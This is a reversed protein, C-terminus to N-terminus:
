WCSGRVPNMLIKLLIDFYSIIFWNTVWVPPPRKAQGPPMASPPYMPWRRNSDAHRCRVLAGYDESLDEVAIRHRCSVPDRYNSGGKTVLLAGSGGFSALKRSRKASNVNPTAGQRGRTKAGQLWPAGDGHRESNYPLRGPQRRATAVASQRRPDPRNSPSDGPSGRGRDGKRDILSGLGGRSYVIVYRSDCGNGDHIGSGREDNGVAGDGACGRRDGGFQRALTWGGNEKGGTTVRLKGLGGRATQRATVAFRQRERGELAGRRPPSLPTGAM